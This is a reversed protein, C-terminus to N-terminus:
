RAAAVGSPSPAAGKGLRNVIEEVDRASARAISVLIQPEELTAFQRLGKHESRSWREVVIAHRAMPAM